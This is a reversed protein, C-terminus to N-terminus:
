SKEEEEAQEVLYAGGCSNGNIDVLVFSHGAGQDYVRQALERLIRAIEGRLAWEPEFAAGDTRIEVKFVREPTM